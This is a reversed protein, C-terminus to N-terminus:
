IKVINEDSEDPSEKVAKPLVAWLVIYIMVVPVGATFFFALAFLVRMLVPDLDFYHAFGAAVGGIVKKNIIRYLKKTEM